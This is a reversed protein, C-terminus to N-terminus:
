RLDGELKGLRSQCLEGGTCDFAPSTYFLREDLFYVWHPQSKAHSWAIESFGVTVMGTLVRSVAESPCNPTDPVMQYEWVQFDREYGPFHVYRVAEPKGLIGAVQQKTMGLQVRAFQETAKPACAALLALGLLVLGIKRIM